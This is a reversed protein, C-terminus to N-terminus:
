GALLALPFDALSAIVQDVGHDAGLQAARSPDALAILCGVGAARAARFGSVADEVVICDQAAPGLNAAAQLYCDPAPKGPRSGDDHVIRTVDFWRALGLHAIFFDLNRRDSSTAITRPVDAAVLTDLLRTAGPSLVFIDPRQLCRERYLSEKQQALAELEAGAVPRGLLYALISANPRGHVHHEFEHADLPRGRLRLAAAQWAEEHLAADWLLVGNFDFIVGQM